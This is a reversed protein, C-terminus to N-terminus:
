PDGKTTRGPSTGGAIGADDVFLREAVVWGATTTFWGGM